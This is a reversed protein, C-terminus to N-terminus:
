PCAAAHRVAEAFAEAAREPTFRQIHELSCKSQRELLMPDRLLRLCSDAISAPDAAPVIYGNQGDRVLDVSSGVRDTLIVPLGCAMAENAVLGWTEELSPLVFIDALAYMAPMEHVEVHDVIHVDSVGLRATRELLTSRQPGYGILALAVDEYERKVMAFADLLYRLGKREIFQGCYVLVRGRTIGLEQRAVTETRDPQVASGGSITWM